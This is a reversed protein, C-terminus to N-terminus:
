QEHHSNVSMMSYMWKVAALSFGSEDTCVSRNPNLGILGMLLVLLVSPGSLQFSQVKSCVPMRFFM